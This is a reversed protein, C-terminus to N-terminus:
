MRRKIFEVALELADLIIQRQDETIPKGCLELGDFTAVNLRATSIIQEIDMTPAPDKVKNPIIRDHALEDTSIDLAKCIKIVNTVNASHIGNKLITSFTSNAMGISKTFASVSGYRDIILTKLRDEISM